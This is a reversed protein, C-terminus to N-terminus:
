AAGQAALFKHQICRVIWLRYLPHSPHQAPLYTFLYIPLYTSLYIPLYTSLYIPVDTSLYIPLYTSLYIPTTSM